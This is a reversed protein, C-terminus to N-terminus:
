QGSFGNDCFSLPFFTHSDNPDTPTEYGVVVNLKCADTESVGLLSLLASEGEQESQAIPSSSAYVFFQNNETDYTIQYDNNNELILYEEDIVFPQLYFNNVTVSGDATGMVFTTGTPAGPITNGSSTSPVMPLTATSSSSVTPNASASNSSSKRSSFYVYAFVAAVVVVFIALLILIKRMM